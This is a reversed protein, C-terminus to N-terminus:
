KPALRFRWSILYKTGSTIVGAEHETDGGILAVDGACMKMTTNDGVTLEGGVYDDNVYLIVTLDCHPAEECRDVHRSLGQNERYRTLSGDKVLVGLDRRYDYILKEPFINKVRNILLGFERELIVTIQSFIVDTLEPNIDEYREIEGIVNKPITFWWESPTSKLFVHLKEITEDSFVNKELAFM